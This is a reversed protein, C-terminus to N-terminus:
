LPSPEPVDAALRALSLGARASELRGRCRQCRALHTSAAADAAGEVLEMLRGDSVHGWM